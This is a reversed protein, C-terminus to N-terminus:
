GDGRVPPTEDFDHERFVDLQALLKEDRADLVARADADTWDYVGTGTKLGYDGEDVREELFPKPETGRDLDAMLYSSVDLHVDLGSHDMKEFVGLSPLRFGFSGKVARDIDEASAVGRELLSEAEYSMALQIRNAIFGPVEREVVVPTKGVSELCDYAVDVVADSTAEGRVIEVVPVVHAPNFYHTGVVRSPDDVVSAIETVSLGSTNTALIADDPAYDDLDAFVGQKVDLQEPVAETVMDADEVAAELSPEYAVRELTTTREDGELHGADVFTRVGSEIRGRASELAQEDVDFVTVHKGGVAFGLAIAYGMTGAGVISLRDVATDDDIAAM